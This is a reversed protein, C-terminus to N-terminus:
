CHKLYLAVTCALRYRTAWEYEKKEWPRLPDSVRLPIHFVTTYDTENGSFNIGGMSQWGAIDHRPSPNQVKLSVLVPHKSQDPERILLKAETDSVYGVRAFSIDSSPHLVKGRYLFDTAGLVLGINLLLTVLSLLDNTPSPLGTLITRWFKASREQLLITEKIDIEEEIHAPKENSRLNHSHVATSPNTPPQDEVETDTVTIEVKDDIINYQAQTLFSSFFSPIYIAFL